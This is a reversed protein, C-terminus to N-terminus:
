KQGCNDAGYHAKDMTKLGKYMTKTIKGHVIYAPCPVIINKNCSYTYLLPASFIGGRM